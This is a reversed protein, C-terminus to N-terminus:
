DKLLVARPTERRDGTREPIRLDVDKCETDGFRVPEADNAREDVPRLIGVPRQRIEPEADREGVDDADLHTVLGAAERVDCRNEPIRLDVDLVSVGVRPLVRRDQDQAHVLGLVGDPM